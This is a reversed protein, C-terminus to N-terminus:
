SVTRALGNTAIRGTVDVACGDRTKQTIAVCTVQLPAHRFQVYLAVGAATLFLEALAGAALRGVRRRRRLPAPLQGTHWVDRSASRAQRAPSSSLLGPGHRIIEAPHAASATPETTPLLPSALETPLDRPTLPGASLSRIASYRDPSGPETDRTDPPVESGHTVPQGHPGVGSGSCSGGSSRTM